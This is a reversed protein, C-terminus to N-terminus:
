YSKKSKPKTIEFIIHQSNQHQQLSDFYPFAVIHGWVELKAYNLGSKDMKRCISAIHFRDQIVVDDWAHGRMAKVQISGIM